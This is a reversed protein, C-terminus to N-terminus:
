GESRTGQHYRMEWRGGREVWVSSRKARGGGAISAFTVLAVSPALIEVVFDSIEVERAGGEALAALISAKSWTRGSAGVEVFDGALLDALGADAPDAAALRRELGLLLAALDGM